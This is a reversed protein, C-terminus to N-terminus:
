VACGQPKQVAESKPLGHETWAAEAVVLRQHMYTHTYTHSCLLWLGGVGECEKGEELLGSFSTPIPESACVMCLTVRFARGGLTRDEPSAGGELM